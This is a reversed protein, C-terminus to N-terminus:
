CASPAAAGAAAPAAAFFVVVTVPVVEVVLPVLVVVEVVGSRVASTDFVLVDLLVAVDVDVDDVVNSSGNVRITTVVVLVSVDTTSLGGSGGPCTFFFLLVFGGFPGFGYSPDRTKQANIEDM